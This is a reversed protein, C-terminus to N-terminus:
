GNQAMSSGIVREWFRTFRSKALRLPPSSVRTVRKSVPTIPNEAYWRAWKRIVDSLRTTTPVCLQPVGHKGKSGTRM